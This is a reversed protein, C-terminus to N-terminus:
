RHSNPQERRRTLFSAVVAHDPLRSNAYRCSSLATSPTTRPFPAVTPLAMVTVGVVIDGFEALAIRGLANYITWSPM